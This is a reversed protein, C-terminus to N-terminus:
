IIGSIRMAFASSSFGKRAPMSSSAAIGVSTSFSHQPTLFDSSASRILFARSSDLSLTTETLFLFSTTLNCPSKPRTLPSASAM